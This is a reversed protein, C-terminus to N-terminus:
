GPEATALERLTALQHADPFQHVRYRVPELDPAVQMLNSVIPFADHWAVRFQDRTTHDAMFAIYDTKPLLTDVGHSWVCLSFTSQDKRQFLKYGAIFIDLNQREHLRALYGAQQEYDMLDRRRRIALAAEKQAPDEPLYAILKNDALLYLNPSLGHGQDFHSEPGYKLIAAIGSSQYSGTVWVQDRNPAFVIPDGNIKLRYFLDPLLLRASDYSDRFESVYLGEVIPKFGAESTRTRLHDVALELAEALSVGWDSLTSANVNMISRETDYAVGAVLGPAIPKFESVIKSADGGDARIKLKILEFHAPDRVIPMLHDRASALDKPMTPAELFSSVYLAFRANRDTGNQAHSYDRYANDLYFTRDASAIRLSFDEPHYQVGSAGRKELAERVMKAFQEKTTRRSFLKDLLGV